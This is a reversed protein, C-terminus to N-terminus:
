GTRQSLPEIHFRMLQRESGTSRASHQIDAPLLAWPHM